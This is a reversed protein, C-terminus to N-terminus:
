RNRARSRKLLFSAEAGLVPDSEVRKLIELGRDGGLRKIPRLFHIRSEGRDSQDLLAILDDLQDKTASAAMATALGEEEGSGKASMYLRRLAGWAYVSPKVALARGLSEMVRDPYGGEELHRLLVPIALPYPASTNVLDWVSSVHVGVDHLDRVIPQEAARLVQVRAQREAEGAAIRRQFEPDRSLEAELEGATIPGRGRRSTM